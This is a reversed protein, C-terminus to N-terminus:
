ETDESRASRPMLAAMKSDGRRVAHEARNMGPGLKMCEM